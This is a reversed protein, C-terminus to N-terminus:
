KATELPKHPPPKHHHDRKKETVDCRQSLVHLENAKSAEWQWLCLINQGFFLIQVLGSWSIESSGSLINQFIYPITIAATSYGESLPLM